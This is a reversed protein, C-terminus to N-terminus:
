RVTVKRSCVIHRSDTGIEILYDGPDVKWDGLATDYYSFAEPGLTFDVRVEGGAPVEVKRFWKLEHAPRFVSPSLPRVYLQVTEKGDRGGTNRVTVAGRVSAGEASAQLGDYAYETYQLGYGFAFAPEVDRTDYYRYGVMLSDTFHIIDNNEWGLRVIPTDAYKRPWTFPLRGSPNVKGTLIEAVATGGEIGGYWSELIAPVNDMWGGLELPSGNVLTVVTKKNLGALRNIVEEQLAPFLLSSRDRGETDLNMDLGGVFIVVDAKRAAKDLKKWQLQNEDTQPTSWDIHLSADGRGKTYIVCLQYPVGKRLDVSGTATGHGADAAHVVAVPAGGWEGNLAFVDGGGATFRFTYKGDAPPIVTFDFRAERWDDVPISPDPSRMEWMFSIKDETRTLVPKDEGKVYYRANVAVDSPIERFGGLDYWDVYTVKKEGFAKKLGDLVTVEDPSLMWSSGGMAWACTHLTANPGTVLVNRVKKPDLPLLDGENRLLVMGEEAVKRAVAIHGPTDRGFGREVDNEPDLAGVRDYLRLIRLVKEDIFSEPVTGKRVAELLPKGFGCGDGGPMSIDLGAFAAKETSRTQLWDTIVVGDFGWREKLIDTLLKRSDSVYEFNVGNASTMVSWVGAQEVAAKYAPLYIEHLTRDDVVSFYFNRNNERNNCAYHKLCAAVDVSQIGKVVPVTVASNLFPDETYYEFFRGGVPDRLINCAPGLLVSCGFSRTEEGMVRGAEQLLEPNWTSSLGTGCPFGTSRDGHPGRPGDTLRVAPIGLRPVARFDIVGSGSCLSVKEELTMRSLIARLRADGDDQAACLFPVCVALAALCRLPHLSKINM